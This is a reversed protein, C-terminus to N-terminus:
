PFSFAFWTFSIILYNLFIIISLSTTNSVATFAKKLCNPFLCKISGGATTAAADRAFFFM